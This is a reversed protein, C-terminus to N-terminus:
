TFPELGLWGFGSLFPETFGPSSGAGRLVTLGIRAFSENLRPMGCSDDSVVTM